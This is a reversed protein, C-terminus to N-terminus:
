TGEERKEIQVALDNALRGYPIRYDFAILRGCFSDLRTRLRGRLARRLFFQATVALAELVFGTRAVRRMEYRGRFDSRDLLVRLAELTYHRHRVDASVPEPPPAPDAEGAVRRRHWRHLWPLRRKLWGMLQRGYNDPDLFGLPGAHPVTLTVVGGPKLIRSMEDLCELEDHVHELVETCVIADFSESEFDTHELGGEVFDIDPYRSRAIEIAAPHPDLGVVSRAKETLFRTGYGWACGADLLRGVGDPTWEYMREYRGWLAFEPFRLPDPGSPSASDAASQEATAMLRPSGM